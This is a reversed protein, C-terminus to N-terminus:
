ECEQKEKERTGRHREARERSKGQAGDKGIDREREAHLILVGPETHHHCVCLATKSIHPCVRMLM